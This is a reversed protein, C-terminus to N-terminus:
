MGVALKIKSSIEVKQDFICIDKFAKIKHRM